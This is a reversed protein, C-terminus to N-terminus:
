DYRAAYMLGGSVWTAFANGNPAVAIRPSTAGSGGSNLTTPGALDTATIRAGKVDPASTWVVFANGQADIGNLAQATHDFAPVSSALPSEAGWTGAANRYALITQPALGNSSDTSAAIISVGDDTVSVKPLGIYGVQSDLASM